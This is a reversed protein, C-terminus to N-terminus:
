VLTVQEVNDIGLLLMIQDGNEGTFMLGSELKSWGGEMEIEVFDEGITYDQIVAFGDGVVGRFTDAHKNGWVEGQSVALLDNDKGGRYLVGSVSGTITDEGRNGNVATGEEAGFVEFTDNDNGGLYKGSGGRLVITDEGKNGNAYNNGGTVELYDNGGMMRLKIDSVVNVIDDSDTFQKFGDDQPTNDSTSSSAPDPIPTPSPSPSPTPSPSPSPTPSPSPSPTPSPSSSSIGLVALPDAYGGANPTGIAGAKVGEDLLLLGAVHPAAMSTGNWSRIGGNQTLSLVNVGPASFDVDDGGSPDDWNSFSPMVNQNDVASVVFVNAHDGASVPSFLDADLGENGAAISFRIGKDAAEIITSVLYSSYDGGLSLNIVTDSLELNNTEIIDVSYNIADNVASIYGNGTEDLVQLAIVMAGPAVGVMGRGNVKAAITGAVHTGHGNLDDSWAEGSVWSKSWTQHINLDGTSNSVGSDIVFAYKDQAFDGEVSFDTGNWSSQVGWPLTDGSQAVDDQYYTSNSILELQNSLQNTASLANLTEPFLSDGLNNIDNVVLSSAEPSDTLGQSELTPVFSSSMFVACINHPLPLLLIGSVEGIVDVRAM